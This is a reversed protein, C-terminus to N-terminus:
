DIPDITLVGYGPACITICHGDEPSPQEDFGTCPNICSTGAVAGDANEWGINCACTGLSSNYTANADCPLCMTGSSNFVYNADCKCVDSSDPTAHSPCTKVCVSGGNKGYGDNCQCEELLDDFHANIGCDPTGGGAPVCGNILGNGVYGAQCCCAGSAGRGQGGGPRVADSGSSHTSISSIRGLIGARSPNRVSGGGGSNATWVANVDCLSASTAPSCSGSSAAPTCGAIPDGKFGSNCQCVGRRGSVSANAGCPVGDAGRGGGSVGEGNGKM